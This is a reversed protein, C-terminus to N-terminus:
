KNKIIETGSIVLDDINEKNKNNKNNFNCNSDYYDCCINNNDNINKINNILIDNNNNQNQNKKILINNYCNCCKNLNTKQGTTEIIVERLGM